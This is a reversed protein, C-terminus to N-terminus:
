RDRRLWDLDVLSLDLVPSWDRVAFQVHAQKILASGAFYSTPNGSLFVGRVWHAVIGREVALREIAANIVACDLDHHSGTNTPPATSTAEVLAHAARLFRAVLPSADLLDFGSVREIEVRVVAPRHPGVDPNTAQEHRARREAWWLARWPADQWCYLGDGLWDATRHRSIPYAQRVIQLAVEETTGHFGVITGAVDATGSRSPGTDRAARGVGVRRSEAM